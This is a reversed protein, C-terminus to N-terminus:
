RAEGRGRRAGTTIRWRGRARAVRRRATERRGGRTGTTIRRRTAERRRRRTGATIRWRLRTAERRRAPERRGRGSGPVLRLGAPERLTLGAVVRVLGAVTLLRARLGPV